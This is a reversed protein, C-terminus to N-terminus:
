NLVGEVWDLIQSFAHDKPRFLRRVAVANIAGSRTTLMLTSSVFTGTCYAITQQRAQDSLLAVAGIHPTSDPQQQLNCQLNSKKDKGVYNKHVGITSEVVNIKMQDGQTEYISNRLIYPKLINFRLLKVTWCTAVEWFVVESFNKM